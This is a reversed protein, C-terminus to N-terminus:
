SSHANQKLILHESYITLDMQDLTDNLSMTEKNIKQKFSRDMTTFPTNFDGVIITNNDRLKKINTISKHIQAWWMQHM